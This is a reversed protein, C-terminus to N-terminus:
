TWCQFSLIMYRMLGWQSLLNLGRTLWYTSQTKSRKLMSLLVPYTPMTNDSIDEVTDLNFGTTDSLHRYESLPCQNISVSGYGQAVIPRLWREMRQWQLSFEEKPVFDCLVLKGGSRLVRKAEQFFKQRNPFAFVCEVALVVDFSDDAFPLQCADACVFEIRNSPRAKVVEKARALQEQDINVGVLELDFFRDNLSSITGGFGCGVDLIRNKNQIGAIDCLRVSLNEAAQAFDALSGDAKSPDSWYGWHIHRGFALLAEADGQRFREPLNDFYASKNSGKNSINNIM